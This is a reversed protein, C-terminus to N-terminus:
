APIIPAPRGIPYLLNNPKKITYAVNDEPSQFSDFGDLGGKRGYSLKIKVNPLVSFVSSSGTVM